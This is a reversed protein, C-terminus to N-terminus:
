LCRSSDVALWVTVHCTELHRCGKKREKKEKINKTKENLYNSAVHRLEVEIMELDRKVEHGATIPPCGLSLVWKVDDYRIMYYSRLSGKRRPLNPSAHAPFLIPFIFNERQNAFSLM